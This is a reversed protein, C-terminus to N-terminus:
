ANAEAVLAGEPTEHAAMAAAGARLSARSGVFSVVQSFTEAIEADDTAVILTGQAMERRITELVSARTGTGLAKLADDVVLIPPRRILSRAISVAARQPAFLAQGRPGVDFDLGIEYIMDDLDLEKLTQEFFARVRAEANAVNEAVRGFLLNDRVPAAMIVHDPDYFEIEGVYDNPLYSRFSERARLVRREFEKSILGMRHRPEIYDLAVSMLKERDVQSLGDSRDRRRARKTIDAFEEMDDRRIMSFRDFLPHGDPLDAFVDIMDEVIRLGIALLPQELAEAKVIARFFPDGVRGHGSLRQGAVVGFLLNEGITAHQNFRDFAFPEVLRSLGKARLREAIDRRSEVIRHKLTEDATRPLRGRLGFDYLDPGMGCDCLIAIILRTLQEPGTVGAAEYDLWDDNDAYPPNGSKIAERWRLSGADTPPPVRRQLSITVNERISGRLLEPEPPVYAILRAVRENSATNIPFEGISIRGDFDLVQHGLVRALAVRGSAAPGFLAIEGPRTLTLSLSELLPAGRQDELRLGSIRIPSTPSPLPRAADDDDDPLLPRDNFQTIVQEYKVTVDARRQDWDILEKIPPPLDRYAAIVAVLQGIDLSGQLALYGGIAYFFFPTIQALFNNLYKVAFKRRYLDARITFLHGLRHAVDAEVRRTLGHSQITQSSDIAEGIRGALKRSAIQRERGLRIQEKRLIPIVIAQVLVISLAVLGLWFSQVMIFLMATFAQTGLFAPQIFADGIFGGIPEVEDKIMSAAEAPKVARLDDPRFRMLRAFLEYRMRRLMREALIGKAINIVYKFAGNALVFFLFLGSLAFLYGVQDFLFGETITLTGGLWDPLPLAISFLSAETVGPPFARGQIAENVIRKPVDLSLWYFPLSAVILLLVFIQESRSHRWIYRFLNPDM